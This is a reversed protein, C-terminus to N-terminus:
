APLVPGADGDDAPSRRAPGSVGALGLAYVVGLAAPLVPVSFSMSYILLFASIGVYSRGPDLLPALALLANVIVLASVVRCATRVGRSVATRRVRVFVLGGLVGLAYLAVPASFVALTQLRAELESVGLGGSAHSLASDVNLAIFAGCAVLVASWVVLNVVFSRKSM